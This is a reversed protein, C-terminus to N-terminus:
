LPYLRMLLALVLVALELSLIIAILGAAAVCSGEDMDEVLGDKKM